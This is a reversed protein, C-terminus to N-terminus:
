HLGFRRRDRANEQRHEQGDEEQSAGGGLFLVKYNEECGPRCQFLSPLSVSRQAILLADIVSIVGNGDADCTCSGPTLPMSLGVAIQSVALADLIPAPLKRDRDIAERNEQVLKGLDRAAALKEDRDLQGLVEVACIRM